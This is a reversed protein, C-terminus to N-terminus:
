LRIQVTYLILTDGTQLPDVNIVTWIEGGDNIRHKNTVRFGPDEMILEKDGMNVGNGLDQTSYNTAVAFVNVGNGPTQYGAPDWPKDPDPPGGALPSLIEFQRGKDRIQATATAKAPAYDFPM